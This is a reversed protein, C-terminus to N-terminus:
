GLGSLTAIAETVQSEKVELYKQLEDLTRHGSIEQIVRLPIGTDSMRTLATRRFSHTSVGELGIRTCANKLLRSASEPCLHKWCHNNHRGPFLYPNTPSSQYELLLKKLNQAVPISRTALQGKTNPKRFVIYPKIGGQSDLVDKKMLSCAEAIRCATYLCIGFLARDRASIFGSQFLINIQEPTLVLAQGYGDVKM